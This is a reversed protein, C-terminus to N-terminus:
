QTRPSEHLMAIAALVKRKEEITHELTSALESSAERLTKKQLTYPNAQMAQDVTQIWDSPIEKSGKLAGAIGGAISAICDTDRGFNTGGIIAAKPDGGSAYFVGLAEALVELADGFPYTASFRKYFPDRIKKVDGYTRAIEVADKIEETVRPIVYGCAAEIVSGVTAKPNFAEAVAAAIAAPCELGGGIPSQLLSCVERADQAAQWPDCANIIGLPFVMMCADVSGPWYGLMGLLNPPLKSIADGSKLRDYSIVIHPNILYGIHKRKIDRIWIKALDKSTIRGGKEIITACMLHKLETGDETTGPACEMHFYHIKPGANHYRVDREEQKWSLLKDVWGYKEEIAKYGGGSVSTWEVAAGMSAGISSGAICGYIKEFLTDEQGM